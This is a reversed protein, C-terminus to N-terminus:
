QNHNRTIQISKTKLSLVAYSQRMLSQLESTHEESRNALSTRRAPIADRVAAFAALQRENQASDEDASALHSLLTEIALGDLAGGRAEEVRLGLRNMGTDVM